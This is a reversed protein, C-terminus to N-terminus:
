SISKALRLGMFQWRADPPFFNRYTRRAHSRPTACSAGRLVYQNCMFKGNYEGLAGPQPQYGPYPAYASQTWQWVEGFMQKLSDSAPGQSASPHFRGSEAFQGEIPANSAAVEWEAETPLRADIWRAYADAEFYSLHCVPEELRVPRMGALTMMWWAGDRQEWYLPADSGRENVATWGLSLWLEPRQYGGDEIFALFERNTVLRTALSFATLFVQHPPTENDFCFGEGAYGISYLGPDFRVWGPAPASPKVPPIEPRFAPRLPNMWFVHKIDTLMLEQHQQEHNLGLVIAPTVAALVGDDATQLFNEMAADVHHRYTYTDKVTPRSVLGRQPRAHMKGVANYYSNFLFAYQPHLPLYDSLHPKLIFTEFFWSTHALHWKTPSIEPMTQIVYDEPELTQCLQESFRRVSLYRELLETERSAAVRDRPPALPRQLLFSDTTVPVSSIKM